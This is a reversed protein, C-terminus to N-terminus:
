LFEGDHHTHKASECLCHRDNRRANHRAWRFQDRFSREVVLLTILAWGSLVLTAYRVGTSADVYDVIGQFGQHSIDANLTYLARVMLLIPLIGSPGATLSTM